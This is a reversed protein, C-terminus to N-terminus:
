DQESQKVLDQYQSLIAEMDGISGVFPLHDRSVCRIGQRSENGSTDVQVPWDQDTVCHSLRAGNEIQAAADFECDLHDRDYSAGICHTGSAPNYPTMYGDYCLVTKLQKLSDHTPLHCVPGQVTGLQLPPTPASCDVQQGNASI